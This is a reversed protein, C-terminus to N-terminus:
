RIGTNHNTGATWIFDCTYFPIMAFCGHRFSLFDQISANLCFTGKRVDFFVHFKASIKITSLFINCGLANNQRNAIIDVLEVMFNLTFSCTLM